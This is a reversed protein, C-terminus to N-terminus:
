YRTDYIYHTIYTELYIFKLISVPFIESLLILPLTAIEVLNFNSWSIHSGPSHILAM